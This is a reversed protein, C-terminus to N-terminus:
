RYFRLDSNTGDYVIAPRNLLNIMSDAVTGTAVTSITWAGTGSINANVAYRIQKTTPAYYAIAPRNTVIALRGVRANAADVTALTWTGSGAANTSIAFRLRSTTPAAPAYSDYAIAPKGNVAAMAIRCNVGNTDVVYHTWNGSENTTSSVGVCAAGGVNYAIMPRGGVVALAGNSVAATRNTVLAYEAWGGTGLTNSSAYYKLYYVFCYGRCNVPVYTVATIAPKGNVIALTPDAGAEDRLDVTYVNWNGLGDATDALYYYLDNYPTGGKRYVIAPRGGVVAMSPSSNGPDAIWALYKTTWCGSGDAESNIAYWLYAFAGGGLTSGIQLYAVAPKGNVIALSGVKAGRSDILSGGTCTLVMDDIVFRGQGNAGNICSAVIRATVASTPIPAQGAIALWADKQSTSNINTTATYTSVLSSTANYYELRLTGSKTGNRLADNSPTRFYGCFKLPAGLYAIANTLAVDQYVSGDASFTWGNEASRYLAFDPDHAAPAAANWAAPADGSGSLAPNVLFNPLKDIRALFPNDVIFRGDGSAAQDCYVLLRVATASAPVIATAQRFVWSGPANSATIAPASTVSLLAPGNYFEIAVKGSKLGNRLPDAAPTMLYAGFRLQEGPSFAQIFDQYIGGDYWFQWASGPSVTYTYDPAQSGSNWNMWGPLSSGSTNLFRNALLNVDANLNTVSVDDVYFRGDGNNFNICRALVRAKTANAPVTASLTPRLWYYPNGSYWNSANMTPTGQVTSLTTDGNLFELQLVGAKSGNRLPDWDPSKLYGNVRLVDGPKFDTVIDQWV